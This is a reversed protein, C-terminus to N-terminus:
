PHTRAPGKQIETKQSYRRCKEQSKAPFMTHNHHFTKIFGNKNRLPAQRHIFIHLRNFPYLGFFRLPMNKPPDKTKQQGQQQPIQQRKGRQEARTIVGGGPQRKRIQLFAPHCLFGAIVQGILALHVQRVGGHHPQHLLQVRDPQIKRLKGCPLQHFAIAQHQRFIDAFQQRLVQHLHRKGLEKRVFRPVRHCVFQRQAIKILKQGFSKQALLRARHQGAPRKGQEEGSVKFFQKRAHLQPIDRPHSVVPVRHNKLIRGRRGHLFQQSRQIKSFRGPCQEFVPIKEAQNGRIETRFANRMQQAPQSGAFQKQGHTFPLRKGIHDQRPFVAPVPDTKRRKGRANRKARHHAIFLHVAHPVLGIRPRVIGGIDRQAGHEARHRFNLKGCHHVIFKVQVRGKGIQIEAIQM